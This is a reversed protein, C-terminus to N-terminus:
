LSIVHMYYRSLITILNITELTCYYLALSDRKGDGEIEKLKDCVIERKRLVQM